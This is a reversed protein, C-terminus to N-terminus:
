NAGLGGMVEGYSLDLKETLLNALRKYVQGAADGMGGTTTFVLLTFHGHEVEHVHQEYQRRKEREHRRYAYKFPHNSQHHVLTLFELMLFSRNFRGGWFGNTVIDLWANSGSNATKFRLAEGSLPQLHPEISVNNCVESMM